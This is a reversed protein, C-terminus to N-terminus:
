ESPNAKRHSLTERKGSGIYKTRNLTEVIVHYLPPEKRIKHELHRAHFVYMPM